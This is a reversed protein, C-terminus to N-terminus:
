SSLRRGMEHLGRHVRDVRDEVRLAQDPALELVGDDLRVHLQPRELDDATVGVLRDDLDVVLALGLAEGRLLDGRHHKALHLGNRLRVEALLDLVGDHGDWRVEIVALALCGLHAASPAHNLAAHGTGRKWGWGNM